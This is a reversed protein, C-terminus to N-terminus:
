SWGFLALVENLLTAVLNMDAGNFADVIGCLLVDSFGKDPNSVTV